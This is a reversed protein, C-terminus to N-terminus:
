ECDWETEDDSSLDDILRSVDAMAFKRPMSEGGNPNSNPIPTTFAVGDIMTPESRKTITRTSIIRIRELWQGIDQTRGTALGLRLGYFSTTRLPYDVGLVAAVCIEGAFQSVYKKPIGRTKFHANDADFYLGPQVITLDNYTDALELGGLGHSTELEGSTFIADTAFMFVTRPPLSLYLRYMDRRLASTILSAYAFNLWPGPTPRTQACKGYLTNLTLKLAIGSGKDKREMDERQEFM